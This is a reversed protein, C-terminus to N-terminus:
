FRQGLLGLGVMGKAELLKLLKKGVAGDTVRHLAAKDQVLFPLDFVEFESIGM